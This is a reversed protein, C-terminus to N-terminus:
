ADATVVYYGVIGDGVLDPLVAWGRMADAQADSFYGISTLAGGLPSVVRALRRRRKTCPRIAATVDSFEASTFEHEDLAAELEAVTGFRVGLADEVTQLRERDEPDLDGTRVFLDAIAVRGDRGLTRRAQGLAGPIDDSHSLAELAWFVDAAGDAVSALDHLDDCAFGTLEKVGHERAYERAIDLQAEGVDVGHVFAEHTRALFISGEGAGCGVNLVTDGAQIGAADALVRITNVAASSPDDHEADYYALHLSRHGHRDWELQYTEVLDEYVAAVEDTDLDRTTM